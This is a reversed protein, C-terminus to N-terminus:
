QNVEDLRKANQMAMHHMLEHGEAVPRGQQVDAISVPPVNYPKNYDTIKNAYSAAVGPFGVLKWGAKDRNGGYLPDAFFGEVTNQLLIELFAKAPLNDFKITGGDLGKLVDDQQAAALTAFRGQYTANCHAETAAIGQRYLEAPTQRLQYGQMPTGQAWPGNRYMKAATGFAGILQQDIFFAVGASRAGPGHEDTPILREVAAEIFAAEPETFYTYAEPENGLPAMGGPQPTNAAMEMPPMEPAAGAATPVAAAATATGIIAVFNKRSFRHAM